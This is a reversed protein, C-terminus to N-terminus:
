EAIEDLEKEMKATFDVDVIEPFNKVLIDNVIIGMESPFFKKQENKQM